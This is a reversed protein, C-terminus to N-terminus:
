IGVKRVYRCIFCGTVNGKITIINEGHALRLWKLNTDTNYDFLNLNDQIDGYCCDVSLTQGNRLTLEMNEEPYRSSRLTVTHMGSERGTIRILPYIDQEWDDSTNHITVTGEGTIDFDTIEEPTFGYPANCEMSFMLGHVNGSPIFETYKVATCFYEVSNHYDDGEPDQITLLAPQCPSTLWSVIERRESETFAQGDEKCLGLDFSLVDEYQKAYTNTISKFPTLETKNVSYNIGTDRETDPSSFECLIVHYKASSIGNFTFNKGTMNIIIVENKIISRLM